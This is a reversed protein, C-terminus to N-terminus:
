KLFNKETIKMLHGNAVEPLKNEDVLINLDKRILKYFNSLKLNSNKKEFASFKKRSYIFMPSEYKKWLIESFKKYHNIQKDFFHDEIEFYNVQKIKNNKIIKSLKDEFSNKFDKDEISHYFVNFGNKILEEKYERMAIFFMLIKLKHHKHKTCLSFDESMFINTTNTEKIENIPFLQNGLIILLKNLHM